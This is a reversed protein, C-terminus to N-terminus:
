EHSTLLVTVPGIEGATFHRQIAALGQLSEAQPSLEGTARYSPHVRMGLIVFPSLVLLALVWVLVPRAAVRHSVWDWFAQRPPGARRSPRLALEARPARRPWFVTKGMIRLLAPTLTLSSLLAIGLSLAIAPGAYRVKAFEALAMLGLGVMVTGASA